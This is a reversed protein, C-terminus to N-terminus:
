PGLRKRKIRIIDSDHRLHSHKTLEGPITAVTKTIIKKLPNQSQRRKMNTDQRQM